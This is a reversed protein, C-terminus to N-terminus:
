SNLTTYKKSTFTQSKRKFLICVMYVYRLFCGEEVALFDLVLKEGKKIVATKFEKQPGSETVEMNKIYFSKPVKGGQKM